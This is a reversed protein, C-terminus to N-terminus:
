HVNRAKKERKSSPERIQPTALEEMISMTPRAIAPIPAEPIWFPAKV